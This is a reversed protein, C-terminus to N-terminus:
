HVGAAEKKEEHVRKQSASVKEAMRRRSKQTKVEKEKGKPGVIKAKRAPKKIPHDIFVELSHMLDVAAADKARVEAELEKIRAEYEERQSDPVGSDEMGILKAGAALCDECLILDDVPMPVYNESRADEGGSTIVPGEYSAEFDVYRPRPDRVMAPQLCASCAVPAEHALKTM